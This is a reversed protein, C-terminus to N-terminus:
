IAVHHVDIKSPLIDSLTSYTLNPPPPGHLIAFWQSLCLLFIVIGNYNCTSENNEM